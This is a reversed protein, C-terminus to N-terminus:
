NRAGIVESDIVSFQSSVQDGFVAIGSIAIVAILAILLSYEVMAAGRQAASRQVHSNVRLFAATVSQKM